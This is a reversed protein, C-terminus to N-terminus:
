ASADLKVNLQEREDYVATSAALFPEVEAGHHACFTLERWDSFVFRWYAHAGCADCRDAYTLTFKNSDM